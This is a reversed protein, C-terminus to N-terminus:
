LDRSSDIHITKGVPATASPNDVIVWLVPCPWDGGWDDGVCGDTLMVVCDPKLKHERLYATVCSPSTGGGGCPKTSSPISEFTGETYTERAAVHSDWYLLDFLEPNVIRCQAMTETLFATLVDGGISGSTDIGNVLHGVRESYMSPMLMDMTMFRRNPRHWTSMDKGQCTSRVFDTFQDQWRVKPILLAALEREANGAGVGRQKNAKEQEILGRRIAHGIEKELEKRTAEDLKGAGEHDHSDLPKGKGQGIRPKGGGGGQEQEQKLIKYVQYSDMGAFRMDHCGMREGDPMRPHKITTEHPDLEHLALNIVHDCAQGAIAPDEEFLAKCVWLHMYMKHFAEHAVLFMLEPMPLKAVFDPNFRENRGDTCATPVSPDIKCEGVTIVPALLAFMPSRILNLRAKILKQEPSLAFM